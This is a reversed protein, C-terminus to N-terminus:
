VFGTWNLSPHMFRRKIQLDGFYLNTPSTGSFFHKMVPHSHSYISSSICIEWSQNREMQRYIM